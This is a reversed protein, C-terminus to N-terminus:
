LSLCLRRRLASSVAASPYFIDEPQQGLQAAGFLQLVNRPQLFFFEAFWKPCMRGICM